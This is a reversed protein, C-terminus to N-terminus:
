PGRAGSQPAEAWVSNSTSAASVGLRLASDARRRTQNRRRSSCCGVLAVGSVALVVTGSPFRVAGLALPVEAVLRAAEGRGIHVEGVALQAEAALM